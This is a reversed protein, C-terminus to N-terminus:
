VAMLKGESCLGRHCYFLFRAGGMLLKRFSGADIIARRLCSMLGRRAGEVAVGCSREENDPRSMIIVGRSGPSLVPSSKAGSFGFLCFYDGLGIKVRTCDQHLAELACWPAFLDIIGMPQVVGSM